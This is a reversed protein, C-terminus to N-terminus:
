TKKRWEIRVLFSSLVDSTGKYNLLPLTRYGERLCKIPICSNAIRSTGVGDNVDIKVVLYALESM